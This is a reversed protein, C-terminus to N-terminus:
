ATVYDFYTVSSVFRLVQHDGCWGRRSYRSLPSPPIEKKANGSLQGDLFNGAVSEGAASPVERM